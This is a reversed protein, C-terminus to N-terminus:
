SVCTTEGVVKLGKIMEYTPLGANVTCCGSSAKVTMWSAAAETLTDHEWIYIVFANKFVDWGILNKPINYGLNLGLLIM